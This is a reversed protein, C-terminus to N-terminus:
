EHRSRTTDWTAVAWIVLVNLAILVISWVPYYPLWLFMVVIGLCAIIIAMIRAWTTGWFLGFAIVILLIGLVIHVWGWGTTNFKYVYDPGVVLLQNNAVASVGTLLTLIGSTLLLAAAAFTASGAFRQRTSQNQDPPNTMLMEKRCAAEILWALLTRTRLNFAIRQPSVNEIPCATLLSTLREDIVRRRSPSSAM